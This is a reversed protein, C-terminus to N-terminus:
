DIQRQFFPIVDKIWREYIGANYGHGWNKVLVVTCEVGCRMLDRATKESERVLVSKDGTGHVIFSPPFTGTIQLEPFLIKVDDPILTSIDVTNDATFASRITSCLGTKGTLFDLRTGSLSAMNSLFARTGPSTDAREPSNWNWASDSCPELMRFETSEPNSYKRYIGLMKKQLQPKATFYHPMLLEGGQGSLSFFAKPRPTGHLAAQRAVYAGGSHGSVFLRTPDIQHTTVATPLGASIYTFLATIDELIDHGTCPLLLRYDASIFSWGNSIVHDPIFGSNAPNPNIIAAFIIGKFEPLISKRNGRFVGGGHFFVVAPILPANLSSSPAPLYIDLHIDLGGARSYIFTHPQSEAMKHDIDIDLNSTPSTVSQHSLSRSIPAPSM